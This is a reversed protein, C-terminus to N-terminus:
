AMIATVIRDTSGELHLRLLETTFLCNHTRCNADVLVSLCVFIDDDDDDDDEIEM